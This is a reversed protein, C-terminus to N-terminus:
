HEGHVKAFASWQNNPKETWIVVFEEGNFEVDVHGGSATNLKLPESWQSTLADYRNTYLDSGSDSWVLVVNGDNDKSMAELTRSVNAVEVADGCTKTKVDCEKAYSKNALSYAVLVKDKDLTTVKASSVLGEDIVKLPASWDDDEFYSIQVPREALCSGVGEIWSIAPTNNETIHIEVSKEQIRGCSGTYVDIAEDAAWRPSASVDFHAVHLGDYSTNLASQTGFEWAVIAKGPETFKVVPNKVNGSTNTEALTPSNWATGNFYRYFLSVENTSSNNVETWVLLVHGQEDIDMAYDSTRPGVTYGTHSMNTSGRLYLYFGSRNMVRDEFVFMSEGASNGVLLYSNYYDVLPGGISGWGTQSNYPQRNLFKIGTLDTHWQAYVNDGVRTLQPYQGPETNSNLKKATAQWDRCVIEVDTINAVAKGQGNNIRCLQQGSPAKALTIDYEEQEALKIVFAFSNGSVEVTELNKNNILELNGILGSISGSIEYVGNGTKGGNIKNDGGSGSGGGSGGCASLLSTLLVAAVAKHNVSINKVLGKKLLQQM